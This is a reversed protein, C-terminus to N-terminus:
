LCFCSRQTAVGRRGRGLARGAGFVPLKERGLFADDRRGDIGVRRLTEDIAFQGPKGEVSAHQLLGLVAAM